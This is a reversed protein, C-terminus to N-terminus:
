TRQRKNYPTSSLLPRDALIQGARFIAMAAFYIAGFAIVKHPHSVWEGSGPIQLLRVVDSTLGLRPLPFFLTFFVGGLYFMASAAWVSGQRAQRQESPTPDIVVALIKGGLLWIFWYVPWWAKFGAAFGFVFLAYFAGFGLLGTIKTKRRADSFMINGMFASSHVVIFELMMVLMMTAVFGDYTQPFLWAYIFVGATVADPLASVIASLM